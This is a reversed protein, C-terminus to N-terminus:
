SRWSQEAEKGASLKQIISMIEGKQSESLERHLLRTMSPESINMAECIEWLRVGASKAAKRVEQNELRKM